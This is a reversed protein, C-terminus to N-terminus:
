SLDGAFLFQNISIYSGIWGVFLGISILMLSHLPSIFLIEGGRLISQISELFQFKMYIHIGKLLILSIVAGLFGQLMGEVLFPGKIFRHTAGILLMLEIEAQRSVVSLKITNALIFILGLSLLGGVALLFVRLFVMFQEFRSIWKEGYELSEVGPKRSLTEAFERIREVRDASQKFQLNYSAPLPNIDLSNLIDANASFDNKFNKWALEKPVFTASEVDPNKPILDELAQREELSIDDKLYVVIQVQKSWTALISNLNVFIVLFLGFISFAIAFTTITVIGVQKNSKLNQIATKLHTSIM